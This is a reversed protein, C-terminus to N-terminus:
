TQWPRSASPNQQLKGSGTRMPHRTQPTLRLKTALSSMQSSNQKQLDMMKQLDKLYAPNYASRARMDAMGQGVWRANVAFRCYDALLPWTERTFHGAPMREVVHYWEASEEATLETPPDPRLGPRGPVIALSATSKRGRQNEM